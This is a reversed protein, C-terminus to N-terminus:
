NCGSLNDIWSSILAVGDSDVLNSALPPMANADRRNMRNALVSRAADGPAIVRANAIGLDGRQTLVDCANTSALATDYRLDLDTPTPGGPRHCQACNTHLYARARDDLPATTDSPDALAPLSALPGPLGGSLMGIHAITELQNAVRQTSPYLFDRNLQATEAGLAFGAASTHCQMCDNESPYIWDQGDISVTKGGVVRTADTGNSNWEYTYGAWVGDPHKMLHRTEILRGNLSFNKVIVSGNPFNFDGNGVSISSGDPIGIYRDKSAGDSWFPANLTYPLLGSDPDTADTSSVCGSASLAVPINDQGSGGAPVIKRVRGASLETFYLEGAADVAFSSPAWASDLLEENTFGGQGDARLAWIRGSIFDAFVYRGFLEPIATGRYVFGGTVSSGGSSDHGYESVPDVLGSGCGDLNFDHAGERCRWGYNGGNEIIDVEEWENQGVDGAWLQGSDPDFSFRWPNRLGWAYIEPCDSANLGPGCKANPAFPNDSPIIYPNSPYSVSPDLVDIRLFSGLMHRTDQARNNPDGGSGGDGLGIYLMGDPGFAIDGGNHNDFDQDVALVVNGNDVTGASPATVDDLVFRSIISRMNPGSHNITYSVFIEPTTPYDPHFAMGLLGGESETRVVNSFDLYTSFSDPNAASFVRLLGTKELLFWRPNPVPELVLKTPQVADPLNPFADVIAIGASQTFREPAVCQTNQPRADLGVEVVDDVVDDVVAPAGGSSGGCSAVLVSVAAFFVTRKMM